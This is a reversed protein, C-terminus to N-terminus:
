QTYDCDRCILRVKEGDFYPYLPTHDSNNGCTYPHINNFPTPLEFLRNTQHLTYSNIIFIIDRYEQVTLNDNFEINPNLM